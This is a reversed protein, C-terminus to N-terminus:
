LSFFNINNEKEKYNLHVLIAQDNSSRQSKELNIIFDLHEKRKDLQMQYFDKLSIENERWYWHGTKILNM